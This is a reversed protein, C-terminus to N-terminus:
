LGFVRMLIAWALLIVAASFLVGILGVIFIRGKSLKPQLPPTPPEVLPYDISSRRIGDLPPKTGGAPVTESFIDFTSEPELDEDPSDAKDPELDEDPLDAKDSEPESRDEEDAANSDPAEDAAESSGEEQPADDKATDEIEASSDEADTLIQGCQECYLSDDPTEKGCWKCQM